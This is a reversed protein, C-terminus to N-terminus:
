GGRPSRREAPRNRGPGRRTLRGIVLRCASRAAVATVIGFPRLKAHAFADLGVAALELDEIKGILLDPGDLLFRDLQRGPREGLALEAVDFQQQVAAERGQGAEQVFGVVVPDHLGHPETVAGEPGHRDGEVHAFGRGLRKRDPVAQREPVVLAPQDRYQGDLGDPPGIPLALRLLDEAGRVLLVRPDVIKQIAGMRNIEAAAEFADFFRDLVVKDLVAVLRRLEALQEILPGPAPNDGILCACGHVAGMLFQGDMGGLHQLGIKEHMGHHAHSLRAIDVVEGPHPAVFVNELGKGLLCGHQAQQLQGHAHGPRPFGQPMREYALVVAAAMEDDAGVMGRGLHVADLLAEVLGIRGLIQQPLRRGLRADLHKGDLLQDVNLFAAM